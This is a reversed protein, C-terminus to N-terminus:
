VGLNAVTRRDLRGTVPLGYESQYTQIAARTMPGFDGDIPGPYYGLRALRVQVRAVTPQAYKVYSPATRPQEMVYVTRYVVPAPASYFEVGFSPGWGGWGPGCYGPGSWGGGWGGGCRGGALSTGIAAFLLITSLLLAKTKM